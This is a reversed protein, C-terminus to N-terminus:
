TLDHTDVALGDITTSDIVGGVTVLRFKLYSDDQPSWFQHICGAGVDFVWYEPIAAAAYLGKKFQLDTALSTVAIEVVLKVASTPLYGEFRDRTCVVIDPEPASRPPLSLTPEILATLSSSAHELARRLRYGLENKARVHPSTQPSMEYLAGELLEMRPLTELAGSREFALLDDVTWKHPTLESPFLM